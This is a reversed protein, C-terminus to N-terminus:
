CTAHTAPHHPTSPEWALPLAWGSASGHMQLQCDDHIHYSVLRLTLLQASSPMVVAEVAQRGIPENALMSVQERAVAGYDM